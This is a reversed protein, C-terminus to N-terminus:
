IEGVWRLFFIFGLILFAALISPLNALWQIIGIWWPVAEEVILEAGEETVKEPTDTTSKITFSVLNIISPIGVIIFIILIALGKFDM